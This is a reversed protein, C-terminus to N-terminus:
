LGAVQDVLRHRNIRVLLNQSLAAPTNTPETSIGMIRLCLTNTNAETGNDAVVGSLGTVTSGATSTNFSINLGIDNVALPTGTAIEQIEFLLNPDDAVMILRQTSAERYLTSKNTIPMVGVVVGQLVDTTAAKIVDAYTRGEITQAGGTIIVPDGIYLATGDGTATSYLNFSGTYPQGSVMRVPRLGYPSALNAM